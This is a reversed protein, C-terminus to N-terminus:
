REAAQAMEWLNLILVDVSDFKIGTYEGKLEYENGTFYEFVEVTQYNPWGIKDLDYIIKVCSKGVKCNYDYYGSNYFEVFECFSKGRLFSFINYGEGGKSVVLLISSDPFVSIYKIGAGGLGTDFPGTQGCIYRLSDRGERHWITLVNRQREWGNLDM